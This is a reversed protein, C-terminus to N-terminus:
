CAAPTLALCVAGLTMYRMPEPFPLGWGEYYMEAMGWFTWLTTTLIVLGTAIYGPLRHKFKSRNM